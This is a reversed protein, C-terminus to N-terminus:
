KINAIKWKEAAEPSVERGLASFLSNIKSCLEFREKGKKDDIMDYILCVATMIHKDEECNTVVEADPKNEEVFVKIGENDPQEFSRMIVEETGNPVFNLLAYPIRWLEGAKSHKHNTILKIKANKPNVKVVIGKSGDPYIEVLMGKRCDNKEM